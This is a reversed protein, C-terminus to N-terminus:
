GSPRESAGSSGGAGPVRVPVVMGKAWHGAIHCGVFWPASGIDNPVTWVVDVRQGSAVVVRLGAVDPPVSVVPTAGPPHDAAGAEAAEWADQVTGDGIVAEHVELGGNVVHLLVTEGPILDVTPPAYGYDRAVINVERPAGSAGAHIPPTPPAAGEDCGAVLLTAFGLLTVAARRWAAPARSVAVRRRDPDTPESPVRPHQWLVADRGASAREGESSVATRARTAHRRM